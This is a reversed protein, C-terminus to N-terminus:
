KPQDQRSLFDALGANGAMRAIDAATRGDSDRAEKNAGMAVLLRAVDDHGNRAALMLATQQNPARVEVDAEHALLYRVVDAHGNFAAYHLAGWGAGDIPAGAEVLRKVIDVHGRLAGLAVATEGYRNHIRYNARMRLLFDVLLEDGNAAALMLMTTGSQDCTDPDAGRTVLEIVTEARDERAALLLEAYSGAIALSSTVAIAGAVLRSRAERM